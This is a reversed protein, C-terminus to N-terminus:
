FALVNILWIISVLCHTQLMCLLAVRHPGGRILENILATCLGHWKGWENGQMIFRLASVKNSEKFTRDWFETSRVVQM